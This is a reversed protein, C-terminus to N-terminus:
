PRKYFNPDMKTTTGSKALEEEFMKRINPDEDYYEIQNGGAKVDKDVKTIDGFGEGLSYKIGGLRPPLYRAGTAGTNFHQHWMMAPPTFVSGDQWDYRKPEEGQRWFMSFGKGKIIIVNFGPGHRHAKKYTGVPFESIHAAMSGNAMELMVNKGGGGREVWDELAFSRADAIFNTDWVRGPYAKGKGSFYEPDGDFRDSFDHPTNFVFDTDEYLNMVPPANTVSVFRAPQQGSGNFHQHRCNLPTAFMAGAKWEFTIRKGEDNWVTTSGRGDLVLIMEEFLQRQPELAKGPPIECVYCDNSTRSAEHNIFVGSGGRRPWPKLEVTRLNRVYHASIVDLGEGRVWRLYPTDKETAFKKALEESVVADKAM